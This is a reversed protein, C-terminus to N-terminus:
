KNANLLLEILRTIDGITVRTDGNVDAAEIEDQTGLVIKALFRLDAMNIEDDGTVDGPLEDDPFTLSGDDDPNPPNVPSYRFRATLTVESDPMEFTFGRDSSIRQGGRYWGLFEYGQNPYVDIYHDVGTEIREGSSRNFSAIGAPESKLYLRAKLVTSPDEPGAPAFRYHAVLHIPADTMTYDFYQETCTHEEGGISWSWHDFVYGSRYLSTGVGVQDGPAWDGDGSTWAVGTPYCSTTVPYRFVPIQPDPPNPPSYQAEASRVGLVLLLIFILSRIIM